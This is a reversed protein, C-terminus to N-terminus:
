VFNAKLKFPYNVWFHFHQWWKSVRLYNWVQIFTQTRGFVFSYIRFFTQLWATKTCCHSGYYSFFMSHFDITGWFWETEWMINGVYYRGKHEASCLCEYLNPVVQPHTFSSLMKMKPHVIGKVEYKLLLFLQSTWSIQYRMNFYGDVYQRREKTNSPYESCM